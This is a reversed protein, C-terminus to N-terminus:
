SWEKNLRASVVASKHLKEFDVPFNCNVIRLYGGSSLFASLIMPKLSFIYIYINCVYLTTHNSGFLRM